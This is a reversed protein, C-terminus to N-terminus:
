IPLLVASGEPVQGNEDPTVIDDEDIMFWNQETASELYWTTEYHTMSDRLKHQEGIIFYEATHGTQSEIIKIRDGIIRALQESHQGGGDIGHSRLTVTQVKGNPTKRRILEFDAIGQGFDQDDVARLSLTMERHGYLSKSPYDIAAADVKGFDTIKQGRIMCTTLTINKNTSNKLLLISRNAGEEKITVTGEGGEFAVSDLYVDLGGIRNDSDDHYSAGLEREENPQLTLPEELQWLIVNTDESITRPHVTVTVDNVFEGQGAYNYQLGQMNDNLTLVITRNVITNHRNWFVVQGTRDFFLRGREAAVTDNIAAFVNFTDPENENKVGRRVWNDAAYALTSKGTDLTSDIVTSGTVWANSDIECYGVVDPLTTGFLPPPISIEDLLRSIIEDTRKNQQIEVTTDVNSFFREPGTAHLQATREGYRGTSPTVTELWGSWHIRETSGDDSRVQVPRLPLVYGELPNGSGPKYDPSFRKEQNDLLLRLTLQHAIDQYPQKFGIFWSMQKVDDTVNDYLDAMDGANYGSPMTSGEVLMVGTLQFSVDTADNNKIFEFYIHTASAGTTFTVSVQEWRPDEDDFIFDSSTVLTTGAQDKVRLIFPVEAHTSTEKVRVSLSYTTSASVAITDVASVDSEGMVFGNGTGVGTDVAFLNIGYDTDVSQRAINDATNTRWDLTTYRIPQPLINLADGPQAEWCIFGKRRWDVGVNFSTAM